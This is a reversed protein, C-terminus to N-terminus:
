RAPGSVRACIWRTIAGIFADVAGGGLRALGASAPIVLAKVIRPRLHEEPAAAIGLRRLKGLLEDAAQRSNNTLFLVGRDSRRLADLVTDVGPLLTEGNYVCGDERLIKARAYLCLVADGIWAEELVRRRKESADM